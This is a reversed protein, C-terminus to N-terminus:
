NWHNSLFNSQYFEPAPQAWSFCYQTFSRESNSCVDKKPVRHRKIKPALQWSDISFFPKWNETHIGSMQEGFNQEGSIQEKIKSRLDKNELSIQERVSGLCNNEYSVQEIFRPALCKNESFKIEPCKNELCKNETCLTQVNTRQVYCRSM